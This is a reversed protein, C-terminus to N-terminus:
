AFRQYEPQSQQIQGCLHEYLKQLLTIVRKVENQLTSVDEM